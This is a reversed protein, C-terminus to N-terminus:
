DVGRFKKAVREDLKKKASHPPILICHLYTIRHRPKIIKRPVAPTISMKSCSKRKILKRAEEKM